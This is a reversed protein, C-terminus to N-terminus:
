RAGRRDRRRLWLRDVRTLRGLARLDRRLEPSLLLGTLVPLPVLRGAVIHTTEVLTRRSVLVALPGYYLTLGTVSLVAVLGATLRHVWREVATFPLLGDPPPHMVEGTPGASGHM